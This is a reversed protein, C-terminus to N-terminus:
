VSGQFNARREHLMGDLLFTYIINDNLKESWKEPSHLVRGGSLDQIMDTISVVHKVWMGLLAEEPTSNLLAAAKKFNSFRDGNRAYEIGKMGMLNMIEALRKDVVETFEEHNM